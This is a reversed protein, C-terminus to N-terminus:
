VAFGAESSLRDRVAAAAESLHEAEGSGTAFEGGGDASGDAATAVERAVEEARQDLGSGVAVALSGDAQATVITVGLPDSRAQKALQEADELTGDPLEVVSVHPEDTVPPESRRAAWWRAVWASRTRNLESTLQEVTEDLTEARDPVEEPRTNLVAAARELPSPDTATVAAPTHGEERAAWQRSRTLSERITQERRQYYWVVAALTLVFVLTQLRTRSMTM